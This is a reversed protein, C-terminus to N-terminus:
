RDLFRVCAQSVLYVYIWEDHVEGRIQCRIEPMDRSMSAVVTTGRSNRVGYRVYERLDIVHREKTQGHRSRRAWSMKEGDRSRAFVRGM